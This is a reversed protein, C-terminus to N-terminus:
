IKKRMGAIVECLRHIGAAAAPILIYIYTQVYRAKTEWALHFLMGGVTYLMFLLLVEKLGTKEKSKFILVYFLFAAAVIIVNVVNSLTAIISYARGGSYINNLLEGRVKDDWNELTIAPASNVSQFTPDAWTSIFKDSFFDAAYGPDAKFASLRRGIEERGIQAAAEYDYGSDEYTNNNFANYWGNGMPGEQLGMAVYLIMPTGRSIEIGSEAEYYAHLARTPVTFILVAALLVTVAAVIRRRGILDLLAVIALALVGIMYNSRILIAFASFIVSLLLDAWPLRGRGLLARLGFFYATMLCTFGPINGYIYMIFFLQPLFLFSLLIAFKNILANGGFVLDAIRYTLYNNLIGLALNFLQFFMINESFLCLIREFTVLGLQHSDYGLYHDFLLSRYDGLNFDKAASFCYNPDNRLTMTTNFIIYMGALTFAVALVTFLRSESISGVLKGGKIGLVLLVLAGLILLIYFSLHNYNINVLEKGFNINVRFITITFLLIALLILGFVYILDTVLRVAKEM